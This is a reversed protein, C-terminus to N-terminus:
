WLNKSYDETNGYPINVTYRIHPPEQWLTENAYPAGHHLSAIQATILVVLM